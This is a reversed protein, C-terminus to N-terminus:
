TGPPWLQLATFLVGVIGLMYFVLRLELGQISHKLDKTTVLSEISAKIGYLIAEAQEDEIGVKTLSKFVDHTDMYIGTGYGKKNLMKIIGEWGLDAPPTDSETKTKKSFM